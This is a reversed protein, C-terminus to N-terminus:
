KQWIETAGLFTVYQLSKETHFLIQDVLSFTKLRSITEDKNLFGDEYLGITAYVNDNAVKGFVLDYDHTFNRDSRNRVVFDLWSADACDFKLIKLAENQLLGDDILYENVFGNKNQNAKMRLRTWREAQNYDTTAYFGLGFDCTHGNKRPVIKPTKVTELSGHYINM